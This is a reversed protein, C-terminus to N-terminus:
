KAAAKFKKLDKALAPLSRGVIYVVDTYVLHHILLNFISGEPNARIARGIKELSM